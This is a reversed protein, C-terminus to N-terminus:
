KLLSTVFLVLGGITGSCILLLGLLVLGGYFIGGIQRAIYPRQRTCFYAAILIVAPIAVVVVLMAADPWAFWRSVIVFLGYPLFIVILFGLLAPIVTWPVNPLDAVRELLGHLVGGRSGAEPGKLVAECHPCTWWAAEVPKDCRPCIPPPAM